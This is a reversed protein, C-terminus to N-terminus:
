ILTDRFCREMRPNELYILGNQKTKPIRKGRIVLPMRFCIRKGSKRATGM